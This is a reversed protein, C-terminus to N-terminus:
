KEFHRILDKPIMTVSPVLDVKPASKDICEQWFEIHIKDVEHSSKSVPMGNKGQISYWYLFEGQDNKERFINEVYMKEDELTLLVKEMNDNLFKLWEDVRTSKGDKVKFKSLEIEFKM